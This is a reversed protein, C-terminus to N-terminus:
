AAVVKRLANKAIQSQQPSLYNEVGLAHSITEIFQSRTMKLSAFVERVHYGNLIGVRLREGMLLAEGKALQEAVFAGVGRAKDAGDKFTGIDLSLGFEDYDLRISLRRDKKSYGEPIMDPPIKVTNGFRLQNGKGRITRTMKDGYKLTAFGEDPHTDVTFDESSAEAVTGVGYEVIKLARLAEQKEAESAKASSILTLMETVRKIWSSEYAAQFEAGSGSFENALTKAAARIHNISAFIERVEGEPRQEAIDLVRDGFDDGFELALFADALEYKDSADRLTDALRAYRVKDAKVMFGVLANQTRLSLETIDISLESNIIERIEPEYLMAAITGDYKRWELEQSNARLKQYYDVVSLRIAATDGAMEENIGDLELNSLEAEELADQYLENIEEEAKQFNAIHKNDLEHKMANFDMGNQASRPMLRLNNVALGYNHRLGLKDLMTFAQEVLGDDYLDQAKDVISADKEDLDNRMSLIKEIYEASLKGNADGAAHNIEYQRRKFDTEIKVLSDHKQIIDAVAEEDCGTIKSTKSIVDTDDGFLESTRLIMDVPSLEGIKEVLRRMENINPEGTSAGGEYNAVMIPMGAHDTIAVSDKAIRVLRTGRQQLQGTVNELNISHFLEEENVSKGTKAFEPRGSLAIFSGTPDVRESQAYKSVATAVVKEFPTEAGDAYDAAFQAIEATVKDAWGQAATTRAVSRMTWLAKVRYGIDEDQKIDEFVDSIGAGFNLDYVLDTIESAGKDANFEGNFLSVVKRMEDSIRSKEASEDINAPKDIQKDM